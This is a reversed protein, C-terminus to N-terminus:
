ADSCRAGGADGGEGRKMWAHWASAVSWVVDSERLPRILADFGGLTIVDRVIAPDDGIVILSPAHPVSTLGAMADRWSGDPLVEECVAVAAKNEQLFAM